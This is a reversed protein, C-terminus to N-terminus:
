RWRPVLAGLIRFPREPDLLRTGIIPRRPGRQNMAEFTALGRPRTNLREIAAILSGGEAAVAAAVEAEHCGVHEGVLRNRLAAIGARAAADQAEIALDCETDLGISRNNLNSSGVRLFIDDVIVLKSHVLIQRRRGDDHPTCPYYVRLRDNEDARRLRRILRDRNMGMVLRETLGRSKRTLLIVVEPGDPRRLQRELVDGVAPATLYQAEIYITRRAAALADLTLDAAERVEQEGNWGPLTRAIAVPIREFDPTLDAPWAEGASDPCPPLAEGTASFWRSRVLKMVAAAAEGDVVMQIDHVPDYSSGDPHQRLPEEAAHASTDWRGVTLDIGGVFALCDDICVLKQHHAAYLPHQTDLKLRIRPHEQWAAGFILPGSAGPAHVIATSWVLIDVELEPREEVLARLFPGLPPSAEADVQPRLRIRGDFDWGVIHISRRAARLAAELQRFYAAGDVLVAARRAEALRWFNRGPALVRHQPMDRGNFAAQKEGQPARELM